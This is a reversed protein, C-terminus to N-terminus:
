SNGRPYFHLIGNIASTDCFRGLEFELTALQEFDKVELKLVKGDPFHYLLTQVKSIDISDPLFKM